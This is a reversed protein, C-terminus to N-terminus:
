YIEPVSFRIANEEVELFLEDTEFIEGDNSVLMPEANSRIKLSRVKHYDIFNEAGKRSFHTGKSYSPFFSIFKMRSVDKVVSVEVAGDDLVSEPSSKVGGGCFNGNAVATLLLPGDHVYGNDLEIRLDAGKKKLLMIAVGLLYAASGNVFTKQNIEATKAVVNSDFGINIMNDCYRIIEEGNEVYTCKILDIPMSNGMLQAKIDLFNREPGFIRVFDNGTGIPIIGAIANGYGHCANIVENLTGDGGAGFFRVREDPTNECTEKIFREGDGAYKTFYIECDMGTNKEAAHIDAILKEGKKTSGAKPNIIFINRM